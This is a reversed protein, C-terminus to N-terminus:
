IGLSLKLSSVEVAKRDLYAKYDNPSETLGAERTRMRQLAGKRREQHREQHPPSKSVKKM